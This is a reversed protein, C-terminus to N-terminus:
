APLGILSGITSAIEASAGPQAISSAAESMHKLTAPNDLLLRVTSAMESLKPQWLGAGANTVFDVNGDEQGSLKSYLILPLHSNLAEVITGPGAKTVILDAARMMEDLNSVFGYVKVNPPAETSLKEYLNTNKGTVVAITAELPALLNTIEDLAGVGEGGAMTIIAPQTPNWDLAKKLQNKAKAPPYFRSSVPQGIVKIQKPKLGCEHALQAAQPTPTICLTTRTDFWILPVTVLDTVVTVFPIKINHRALTELMGANAFHYTSIVLDAPHNELLKRSNRLAYLSISSNIIKSRRPGDVIEYLSRWAKPSKIVLQFLDGGRDFPQPAIEKLSDIIEVVVGEQYKTVLAEAIANAASKHGGGANAMLILIRKPATIKDVIPTM